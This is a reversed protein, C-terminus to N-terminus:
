MWDSIWEVFMYQADAKNWASNQSSQSVAAFLLLCLNGSQLPEYKFLYM